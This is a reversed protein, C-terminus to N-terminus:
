KRRRRQAAHLLRRGPPGAWIRGRLTFRTAAGNLALLAENMADATRLHALVRASHATTAHTLLTPNTNIEWTVIAGDHVSYDIRGWQLAATDFIGLLADAHPNDCLYALEEDVQAPTVIDPEKLAWARSFLLHRPVIRDGIRLASYKRYIGSADATDLFEVVLGHPLTARAAALASADQLLPTSPGRHGRPERLFVPYRLNDPLREDAEFVRFGPKLARNLPVRDLFDTPDNLTQAGAARARRALAAAAPRTSPGLRDLDGFIFAGGPLWGSVEEYAALRVQDRLAWRYRRMWGRFTYRHRATVLYHIM